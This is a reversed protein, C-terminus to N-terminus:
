HTNLTTITPQINPEILDTSGQWSVYIYIYVCMVVHIYTIYAYTYYLTCIYIYVYLNVCVGGCTREVESESEEDFFDQWVGSTM